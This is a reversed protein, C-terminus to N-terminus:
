PLSNFKPTKPCRDLTTSLVTHTSQSSDPTSRECRRTRFSISHRASQSSPSQRDDAQVYCVAPRTIKCLWKYIEEGAKPAATINLNNAMAVCTKLNSFKFLDDYVNISVFNVGAKLASTKMIQIAEKKSEADGYQRTDRIVNVCRAKKSPAQQFELRNQSYSTSVLFTDPILKILDRTVYSGLTPDNIYIWPAAPIEFPYTKSASKTAKKSKVM